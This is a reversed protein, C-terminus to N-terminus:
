PNFLSIINKFYISIKDLERLMEVPARNDKLVYKENFQGVEQFNQSIDASLEKLDPTDTIQELNLFKESLPSPSGIVFYERRSKSPFFYVNSFASKVTQLIGQSLRDKQPDQTLIMMALIGNDKLRSNALDFFEKTTLQFPLYLESTFADIFILDYKSEKRQLYIRGDENIIEVGQQEELNFFKYAAKTVEPDLEVGKINLSEGGFFHLYQRSTTGGAHGIILIDTDEREGLLFYLPLFCDFYMGTLIKEPHYVSWRGSRNIDLIYGLGEEKVVEVLGYFSEKQYVLNERQPLSVFNFLVPLFLFFLFPKKLDRGMGILSIGILCFGSLLITEKIGWFPITLFSSFFTGFVSGITSFAYVSGSSYGTTEVEKNRLRIVFPSVVGLVSLPLFFLIFVFLLSSFILSDSFFSGSGAIFFSLSFRYVLPVLSIIVGSFLVILMLVKKQPYMDALKGGFYYGIALAIMVLGIINAWVFLSAGFYPTALRFAAMELMM